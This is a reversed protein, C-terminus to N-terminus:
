GENRRDGVVPSRGPRGPRSTTYQAPLTEIGPNMARRPTTRISYGGALILLVGFLLFAVDFISEGRQEVVHHLHLVHHNMVGEVVNFLGWGLM